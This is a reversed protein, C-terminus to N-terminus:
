DLLCFFDQLVFLNYNQHFSHIPRAGIQLKEGCCLIYVQSEFSFCMEFSVVKALM